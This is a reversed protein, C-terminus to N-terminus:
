QAHGNTAALSARWLAGPVLALKESASLSARRRFVDYRNARIKELIAVEDPVLLHNVKKGGEPALPTFGCTTTSADDGPECTVEVRYDAIPTLNANGQGQNDDDDGDDDVDGGDDDHNGDDDDALAVPGGPIMAPVAPSGIVFLLLALLRLLVLGRM